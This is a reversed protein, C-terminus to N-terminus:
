NRISKRFHFVMVKLLEDMSKLKLTDRLAKLDNNLGASVRILVSDADNLISKNVNTKLKEDKVKQSSQM